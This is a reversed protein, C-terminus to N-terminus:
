TQTCLDVNSVTMLNYVLVNLNLVVTEREMISAATASGYLLGSM